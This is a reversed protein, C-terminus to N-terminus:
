PKIEIRKKPILRFGKLPCGKRKRKRNEEQNGGGIFGLWSPHPRIFIMSISKRKSVKLWITPLM